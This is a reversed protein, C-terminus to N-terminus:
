VLSKWAKQRYLYHEQYQINRQSQIDHMIASFPLKLQLSLPSFSCKRAVNYCDVNVSGEHLAKKFSCHLSIFSVLLILFVLSRKLFSIIQSFQLSLNPYSTPSLNLLAPIYIYIYIHIYTYIYIYIYIYVYPQNINIYPLFQCLM